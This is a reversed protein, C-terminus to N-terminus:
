HKLTNSPRIPHGSVVLEKHVFRHGNALLRHCHCLCYEEAARRQVSYPHYYIGIYHFQNEGYIFCLKNYLMTGCIIEKMSDIIIDLLGICGRNICKNSYILMIIEFMKHSCRQLPDLM